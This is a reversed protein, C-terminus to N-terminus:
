GSKKYVLWNFAFISTVKWFIPSWLFTTEFLILSLQTM